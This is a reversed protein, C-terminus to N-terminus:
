ILCRKRSSKKIQGHEFPVATIRRQHPTQLSLHRRRQWTIFIFSKVSIHSPLSQQFVCLRTLNHPFKLGILTRQQMKGDKSGLKFRENGLGLHHSAKIEGPKSRGGTFMWSYCGSDDECRSCRLIASIHWKKFVITKLM